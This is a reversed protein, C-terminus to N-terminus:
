RGDESPDFAIPVPGSGFFHEIAVAVREAARGDGYPNAVRAMAQYASRDDLLERVAKVIGARKTGVLRATGARIGEPRETTDRMVLVPKGLAPGEEQLGGSDTLLVHARGMLWVFGAYPLPETVVVNDVGALVPVITERVAPNRHIPYVVLLNPDSAALEAIAEAIERLPAGLSERRHATVLLVQRSDGDIRRLSPDGSHVAGAAADLVGLLADIGTNGTVLITPAPVGEALLNDRAAITPAFHLAALTATMRRNLEEPFPAYRDHTRLGAEVHGVPVRRYFAALASTFTTTTDGQVLVLDPREAEFVRDLQELMNATLEPLRQRPRCLDLDHVPRISFLELVADLMERHQATVIPVAELLSSRQLAQIVPALKIAEPRTGFVVAVRIRVREGGETV